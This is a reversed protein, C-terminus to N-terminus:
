ACQMKRGNSTPVGDVRGIGRDGRKVRSNGVGFGTNPAEEKKHTAIFFSRDWSAVASASALMSNGARRYYGGGLKGAKFAARVDRVNMRRRVAIESPKFWQELTAMSVIIDILRSRPAGALNDAIEERTKGTLNM